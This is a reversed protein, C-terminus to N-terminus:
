QLEFQLYYVILKVIACCNTIWVGTDPASFIQVISKYFGPIDYQEYFKLDKTKVDTTVAIVRLKPKSNLTLKLKFAEADGLSRKGQIEKITNLSGWPTNLCNITNKKEPNRSIQTRSSSGTQRPDGTMNRASRRCSTGLCPPPLPRRRAALMRCVQRTAM